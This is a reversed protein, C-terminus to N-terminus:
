LSGLGLTVTLLQGRLSDCCALTMDPAGHANSANRKLCFAGLSEHLLCFLPRHRKMGQYLCDGLVLLLNRAIGPPPPAGYTDNADQEICVASLLEFLCFLSSFAHREDGTEFLTLCDGLVLLLMGAM